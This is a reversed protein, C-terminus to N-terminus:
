IRYWVMELERGWRLGHRRKAPFERINQCAVRTNPFTFKIPEGLTHGTFFYARCLSSPADLDIKRIFSKSRLKGAMQTTFHPYTLVVRIENNQVSVSIKHDSRAARCDARTSHM